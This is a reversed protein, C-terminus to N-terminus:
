PSEEEQNYRARLVAKLRTIYTESCGLARAQIGRKECWESITHHALVLKM